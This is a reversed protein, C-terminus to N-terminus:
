LWGEKYTIEVSTIGSAISLTNTGVLLKPFVELIVKDNKNVGNKTCNMLDCDITIGSELVEVEVNNLTIIGTGYVLISPSVEYTGSVSFENSSSSFIETKETKSFGIPDLEFTIIFNKLYTLYKSFDIQNKVTARYEINPETSLELVGTSDLLTKIANINADDTLICNVKYTKSKYTGNDIHLTRNSGSISISDINKESKTIPPLEKIIIGLNTSKIGNFIFYPFNDYNM